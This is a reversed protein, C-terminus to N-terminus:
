SATPSLTRVGLTTACFETEYCEVVIEWRKVSIQRIYVAYRTGQSTNGRATKFNSADENGEAEVTFFLVTSGVVRSKAAATSQYRVEAKRGTVGAKALAQELSLTRGGFAKAKDTGGYCALRLLEAAIGFLARNPTIGSSDGSLAIQNALDYDPDASGAADWVIPVDTASAVGLAYKRRFANRGLRRMLKGTYYQQWNPQNKIRDWDLVIRLGRNPITRSAKSQSYDVLPFDANIARLDDYSGDSLFEEVNPYVIHEYREGSPPLAPALFESLEDYGGPDKWGTAYNTMPESFHGQVFLSDNATTISGHPLAAGPQYAPVIAGALITAVLAANATRFPIITKM